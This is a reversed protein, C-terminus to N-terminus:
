IPHILYPTRRQEHKQVWSIRANIVDSTYCSIDIGYTEKFLAYVYGMYFGRKLFPINMKIIDCKSSSLRHYYNSQMSAVHHKLLLMGCRDATEHNSSYLPVGLIRKLTNNYAVEFAKYKSRNFSVKNNWLSIGYIPKCYSNFLFLLTNTDVPKFNRLLSNTSAYFSSLRMDM